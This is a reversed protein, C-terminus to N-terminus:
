RNVYKLQHTCPPKAPAPAMPMPVPNNRAFPFEPRLENAKKTRIHSQLMWLRDAPNSM